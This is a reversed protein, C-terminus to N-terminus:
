FEHMAGSNHGCHDMKAVSHHISCSFGKYKDVIALLFGVGMFFPTGAQAVTADSTRPKGIKIEPSTFAAATLLIQILRVVAATATLLVRCRLFNQTRLLSKVV